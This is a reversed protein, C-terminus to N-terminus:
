TRTGRPIRKFVFERQVAFNFIFIVTEALIKAPVVEMPTQSIILKILCYSIIGSVVVLLLYRPFARINKADSHFVAKKNGLYNFATAVIRGSAQAGIISHCFPLALLFVVNDVVATLFSVITFRMLLFYIRMSDLFPNFHSSKNNNIYITEIGTEIIGIGEYRCVLLMELEFEYGDYKLGLLRPILAKPIGRLGTQTDSIKQGVLLRQSVRMILNGVRSRLPLRGAFSRVGLVLKDPNSALTGVVRLIDEVCHQGDADATIVGPCGEFTCAAFNLGTKLAAGKGLNVLHRLVHVRPYKSASEFCEKYEPGSGDDVVIVAQFADSEVLSWVIDIMEKGPQYAPILAIPKIINMESEM